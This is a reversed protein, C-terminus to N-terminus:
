QMRRRAAQVIGATVNGLGLESARSIMKVGFSLIVAKDTADFLLTNEAVLADLQANLAFENNVDSMVFENFDDLALNTAQAADTTSNKIEVRYGKVTLYQKISATSINQKAVVTESNLNIAVDGDSLASYAPLALEEILIQYKM